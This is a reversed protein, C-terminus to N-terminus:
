RDAAGGVALVKALTQRLRSATIPRPLVIVGSDPPGNEGLLPKGGLIIVPTSRLASNSRLWTVTEIASVDTLQPGLLIVDPRQARASTVAGAGSELSDLVTFGAAALTERCVERTAPDPDALVAYRPKAQPM